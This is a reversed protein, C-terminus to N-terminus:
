NSIFNDNYLQANCQKNLLLVYPIDQICSVVMEAFEYENLNNVRRLSDFAAYIYPIRNRDSYYLDQILQNYDDFSNYPISYGNRFASSNKYEKASVKLYTDYHN